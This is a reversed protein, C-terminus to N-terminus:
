AEGAGANTSEPEVKRGQIRIDGFLKNQMIIILKTKVCELIALFACVIDMVSGRRVVLEEFLFSEKTEIFEMILAIKENVSVEEYLSIIREPSINSMMKSFTKLLDWVEIKEWLEADQEFGLTQQIKRRELSWETREERDHMLETLKRFKQYEILREVLERRPDEIEDELNIELPLLMKSKIYILTSALLYFDTLDELPVRTSFNIFALYQETITAIPIDYINVENKKILYLLLDLPGEFDSLQFRHGSSEPSSVNEETKLQTDM